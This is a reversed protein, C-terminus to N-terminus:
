LGSQNEELGTLNVLSALDLITLKVASALGLISSHDVEGHFGFRSHDALKLMSVFELRWKENSVLELITM